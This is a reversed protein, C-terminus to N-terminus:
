TYHARVYSRTLLNTKNRFTLGGDTSMWFATTTPASFFPTCSWQTLQIDFPPRDTLYLQNNVDVRILSGLMDRTPLYFDTFGSWSIAGQAVQTAWNAQGGRTGRWGLGTYEDIIYYSGSLLFVTDRDSINGDKDKYQGDNFDYYGGNPGVFRFKHGWVNNYRLKDPDSPELQQPKTGAPITYDFTGNDFHWGEDYDADSTLDLLAPRVYHVPIDDDTNIVIKKENATNTTLTGLNVDGQNVVNIDLNDGSPTDVGTPTGNFDTDVPLAGGGTIEVRKVNPNNVILTGLDVGMDDVVQFDINGGPSTTNGTDVGQFSTTVDPCVVPPVGDCPCLGDPLIELTFRLEVGSIPQDFIFADNGWTTPDGFNMWEERPISLPENFKSVQDNILFVFLDAMANMPEMIETQQLKIQDRRKNFSTLFIPRIEALYAIDSDRDNDETVKPKPFYVFPGKQDKIRSRENEVKRHSGHRFKPAALQYSTGVPQAAGSVTVSENQVFDVVKFPLGGITLTMGKTVWYTRCSSLKWNTGSAVNDTIDIVPTMQSVLSELVPIINDAQQM